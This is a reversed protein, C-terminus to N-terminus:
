REGRTAELARRVKPPATPALEIDPQAALARRLNERAADEQGLALRATAALLELRAIRGRRAPGDSIARAAPRLVAAAELASRFRAENILAALRILAADFAPGAAAAAPTPAQVAPARPAVASAREASQPQAVASAREASRSRPVAAVREDSQPAPAAPTHAASRLAPAPPRGRTPWAPSRLAIRLAGDVSDARAPLSGAPSSPELQLVRRLPSPAARQAKRVLEVADPALCVAHQWLRTAELRDVGDLTEALRALEAVRAQAWAARGPDPDDLTPLPVPEGPWPRCRPPEGAVASVITALLAVTTLPLAFSWRMSRM